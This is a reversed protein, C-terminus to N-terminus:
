SMLETVLVSRLFAGMGLAIFTVKRPWSCKQDDM